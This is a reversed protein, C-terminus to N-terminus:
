VSGATSRVSPAVTVFALRSSSIARFFSHCSSLDLVGPHGRLVAARRIVMTGIVVFVVIVRQRLSGNSEIQTDRRHGQKSTVSPKNPFSRVLVVQSWPYILGMGMHLMTLLNPASSRRQKRFLHIRLRRSSTPRTPPVLDGHKNSGSALGRMTSVLPGVSFSRRALM